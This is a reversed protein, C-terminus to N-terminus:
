GKHLNHTTMISNRVSQPNLPSNVHPLKWNYIQRSFIFCVDDEVDGGQFLNTNVNVSSIMMWDSSSLCFLFSIESFFNWLKDSKTDFGELDDPKSIFFKVVRWIKIFFKVIQWTKSQFCFHSATSKSNFKKWCTPKQFITRTWFFVNQNMKSRSFSMM